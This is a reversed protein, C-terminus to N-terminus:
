RRDYFHRAPETRSGRRAVTAETITHGLAPNAYRWAEITMPDLEPPPSYEALYLGADTGTDIARLGQERWRLMAHSDETGATSFM